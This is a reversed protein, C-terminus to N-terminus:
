IKRALPDFRTAPVKNLAFPTRSATGNAALVTTYPDYITRLTGSANLSQSFDGNREIPTPSTATNSSPTNLKWQEYSFFSFLKNKKIPNGITGGFINNRSASNTLTTRDTTAN